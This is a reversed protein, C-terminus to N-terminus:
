LIDTIGDKSYCSYDIVIRNMILVRWFNVDVLGNQFLLPFITVFCFTYVFVKDKKKINSIGYFMTILLLVLGFLGQNLFFELFVNHLGPLMSASRIGFWSNLGFGLMPSTTIMDIAKNWSEQRVDETFGGRASGVMELYFTITDEFYVLGAFVVLLPILGMMLSGSHKLYGFILFATSMVITLLAARTGTLIDAVFILVLILAYIVKNKISTKTYIIMYTLVFFSVNIFSAVYNPNKYIGTIGISYRINGEYISDVHTYGGWFSLFVLISLIISIMTYIYICINIQKSSYYHKTLTILLLDFATFKLLDKGFDGYHSFVTSILASISLALAFPVWNRQFRYVNDMKIISLLLLGGWMLIGMAGTEDTTLMPFLILILTFFPISFIKKYM